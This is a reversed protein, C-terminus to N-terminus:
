VVVDAEMSIKGKSTMCNIEESNEWFMEKVKTFSLLVSGVLKVMSVSVQWSVSEDSSSGKLTKRRVLSRHNTLNTKLSRKRVAGSGRGEEWM